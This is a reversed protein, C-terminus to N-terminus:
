RCCSRCSMRGPSARRWPSSQQRRGCSSASISTRGPSAGRRGSFPARRVRCWRWGHRGAGSVPRGNGHGCRRLYVLHARQRVGGFLIQPPLDHACQGQASGHDDEKFFCFAPCPVSMETQAKDPQRKESCSARWRVLTNHWFSSPNDLSAPLFFTGLECACFGFM